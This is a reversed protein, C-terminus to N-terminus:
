VRAKGRNIERGNVAFCNREEDVTIEQAGSVCPKGMGRAVVAAHSPMGGRATLIGKAAVMGRFDEPTTERRMLIGAAGKPVM